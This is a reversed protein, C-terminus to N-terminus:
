IKLHIRRKLENIYCGYKYTAVVFNWISYCASCSKKVKKPNITLCTVYPELKELIEDKMNDRDFNMLMRVFNQKGILKKTYHWEAPYGFMVNVAEM